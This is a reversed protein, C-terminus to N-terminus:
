GNFLQVSHDPKLKKRLEPGSKLRIARLGLWQVFKTKTHVSKKSKVMPFGSWEFVPTVNM